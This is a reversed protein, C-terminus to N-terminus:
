KNSVEFHTKKRGGALYSLNGIIIFMIIVLHAVTQPGMRQIAQKSSAEFQPYGTVLAKEYEAAGQLGGMLGLLQKPYYPYLLPAEVATVGGIVPVKTIDGGFQIWEKLGPFGSGICILLDLDQLREIEAMMPIDNTDTGNIDVPIAQKFDAFLGNIMGQNGAKYGLNVWDEGYVADPFDPDIVNRKVLNIMPPGTPWLSVLYIRLDKALCHRVIAEIMPQNEPETSPGYDASILVKSGAPLAAVQDYADQVITTTVVPFVLGMALPIIVALAIAVFILRRDLSGLREMPSSM